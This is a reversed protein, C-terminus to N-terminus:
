ASIIVSIFRAADAFAELPPEGAGILLFPKGPYRPAHRKKEKPDYVYTIRLIDFSAADGDVTERGAHSRSSTFSNSGRSM